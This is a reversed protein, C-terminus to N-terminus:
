WIVLKIKLERQMLKVLDRVISFFHHRVSFVGAPIFGHIHLKKYIPNRANVTIKSASVLDNSMIICPM